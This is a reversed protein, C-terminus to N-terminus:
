GTYFTNVFTFLYVSIGILEASRVNGWVFVALTHRFSLAARGGAFCRGSSDIFAVPFVSMLM